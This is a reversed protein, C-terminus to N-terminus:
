RQSSNAFVMGNEILYDTVIEIMDEDVLPTFINTVVQGDSNYIGRKCRGQKLLETLKERNSMENATLREIVDAAEDLMKRKSRSQTNRLRDILDKYM